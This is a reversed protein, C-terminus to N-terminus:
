RSRLEREGISVARVAPDGAVVRVPLEAVALWRALREPDGGVEIWAIAPLHDRRPGPRAGRREIFFPLGPEAMAESVGALHATMGQRGVRMTSIDLAAAVAVLDPVAVAWSLWGDGTALASQLAAGVESRAAEAADAVALLEVFGDALPVIRNHTGMGDHRGGNVSVVGLREFRAAAVALDAAAYVVHDIRGPPSV